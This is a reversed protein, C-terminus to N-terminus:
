GILWLFARGTVVDNSAYLTNFDSHGSRIMNSDAGDPILLPARPANPPTTKPQAACPSLFEM